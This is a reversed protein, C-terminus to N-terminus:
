DEVLHQLEAATIEGVGLLKGLLTDLIEAEAGADSPEDDGRSLAAPGLLLIGAITAAILRRLREPSFPWRTAWGSRRSSCSSPSCSSACRWTRFPCATM